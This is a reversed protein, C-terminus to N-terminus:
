GRQSVGEVERCPYSFIALFTWFFHCLFTALLHGFFPFFSRDGKAEGRKCCMSSNGKRAILEVSPFDM